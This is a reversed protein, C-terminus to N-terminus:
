SKRLGVSDRGKWWCGYGPASRGEDIVGARLGHLGVVTGRHGRIEHVAHRPLHHGLLLLLLRLRRLLGLLVNNIHQSLTGAYLIGPMGGHGDILAEAHHPLHLDM